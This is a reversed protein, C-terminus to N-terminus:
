TETNNEDYSNKKNVAPFVILGSIMLFFNQVLHVSVKQIYVMCVSSYFNCMIIILLSKPIDKARLFPFSIRM